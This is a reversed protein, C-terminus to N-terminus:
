SKIAQGSKRALRTSPLTHVYMNLVTFILKPPRPQSTVFIAGVFIVAIFINHPLENVEIM